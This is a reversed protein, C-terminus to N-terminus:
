ARARLRLMLGVAVIFMTIYSAFIYYHNKQSLNYIMLILIIFGGGYLSSLLLKKYYTGRSYRGKLIVIAGLLSLIISSLPWVFRHNAEAILRPNANFLYERFLDGTYYASPAYFTEQDSASDQETLDIRYSKFTSVSILGKDLNEEQYTGNNLTFIPGKNTNTIEGSESTITIHRKPNSQDYIFVGEVNKRDLRNNIFIMKNPLQNNFIGDNLLFSLYKNRLESRTELFEKKSLPALFHSILISLLCILSGFLLFPRAITSDDYGSTKLVILERDHSLSYITIISSILCCIPLILSLIEILLFSIMRLFKSLEVGTSALIEIYKMSLALWLLMVLITCSSIFSKSLKSIIYSTIINFKFM